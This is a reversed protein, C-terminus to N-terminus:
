QDIQRDAAALRTRYTWREVVLTGPAGWGLTELSALGLMRRERGALWLLAAFVWRRLRQVFM